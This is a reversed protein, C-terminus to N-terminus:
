PTGKVAASIIASMREKVNEVTIRAMGQPAQGSHGHELAMIYDANNSIWVVTGHSRTALVAVDTADYNGIERKGQAPGSITIQWNARAYGTAVPTTEKVGRYVAMATQLVVADVSSGVADAFKDIQSGFSLLDGTAM